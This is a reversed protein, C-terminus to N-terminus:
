VLNSQITALERPLKSVRIGNFSKTRRANIQMSGSLRNAIPQMEINSRNVHVVHVNGVSFTRSRKIKSSKIRPLKTVLVSKVRRLTKNSNEQETASLSSIRNVRIGNHVSHRIRATNGLNYDYDVTNADTAYNEKFNQINTMAAIEDRTVKKVSVTPAIENAKSHIQAPDSSKLHLHTLADSVISSKTHPTTHGISERTLSSSRYIRSVSQKRRTLNMISSRFIGQYERDDTVRKKQRRRGIPHRCFLYLKPIAEIKDNKESFIQKFTVNSQLDNNILVWWYHFYLCCGACCIALLLALLSLGLILLWNIPKDSSSFFSVSFKAHQYNPAWKTLEIVNMLYSRAWWSRDM